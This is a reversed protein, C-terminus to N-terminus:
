LKPNITNPTQPESTQFQLPKFASAGVTGWALHPRRYFGRCTMRDQQLESLVRELSFELGNILGLGKPKIGICSLGQKAPKCAKMFTFQGSHKPGRNPSLADGKEVWLFWASIATACLM